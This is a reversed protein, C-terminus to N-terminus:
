PPAGVDDAIDAATPDSIYETSGIIFATQAVPDLGQLYARTEDPYRDVAVGVQPAGNRASLPASALTLAWGDPREINTVVVDIVPGDLVEPWLTTAVAVATAMRNSGAVRTPNPTSQAVAESIVGTGGIVLTRQADQLITASAPHLQDTPTLVIPTGTAAAYAGVTVADPWDNGYALIVEAATGGPMQTRAVDAIGAATEYRTEGAHRTLAYGAAALEDEVSQSVANIGGLLGVPGGAPLVRDIEARVRPDLAADPGGETAGTLPADESASHQEHKGM